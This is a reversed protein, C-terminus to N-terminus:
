YGELVVRRRSMKVAGCGKSMVCLCTSYERPRPNIVCVASEVYRLYKWLYVCETRFWREMM